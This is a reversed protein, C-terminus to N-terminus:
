QALLGAQPDPLALLEATSDLWLHMKTTATTTTTTTAAATTTTTPAATTTCLLLLLLLLLVVVKGGQALLGARPDPLPLPTWGCICQQENIMAKYGLFDGHYKDPNSAM